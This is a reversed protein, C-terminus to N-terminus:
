RESNELPQLAVSAKILYSCTCRDTADPLLVLGGAPLANIWCGPRIGGYNETGRNSSLDTYGLTASRYVLLHESGALIGCGYSRSFEFAKAEGTLLDWAGPQAYITGGNILVRSAYKAAVDWLKAGSSARFAAMRGGVESDLKFRTDQYSMVLVDYEESVSLTTGYAVDPIKWLPKGGAADLAMLTGAPHPPRQDGRRSASKQSLLDGKASPRDILFVTGGAIAVSNNRISHEPQYTWKVAGSPIDIAFLRTSETFQSSMDGERYRWGVVHDTDSLTGFLTDGAVAVLGWTGEGGDSQRPAAYDGVLKGSAPDIRLCRGGTRVFLGAPSVCLNSGTGATGMLHEQDYGHLIGPLAYTWLKRGNYADVALLGDLGEVFLRGEFCLPAPGRGHRSPMPFGFDTFWLMGLPGRALVDASCNTNAPNCYQHTWTGAGELKGRATETMARPAGICAKGGYPKLVRNLEGDAGPPLGGKVSRGSVILNAFYDPYHTKAPDGQHVTVRVGYLGAAELKRRAAAVNGADPDVAVIQLDTKEALAVALSGDGCGLDLCYGENLGTRRVIEEATQEYVAEIEPRGPGSTRAVTKPAATGSGDFCYLVGRDTALYLRGNAVAPGCPAGDTTSDFVATKSQLDVVCVRDEGCAVAHGGALILERVSKLPSKMRWVPPSLVTKTIPQGKRDTAKQNTWMARRDIAVIEDGAAFVIREPGVAAAMTEISGGAVHGTEVNFISRSHLFHSGAAMIESGGLARYQQLHFYRLTGDRRDLAAPVGRGTPVLLVDGTVVLNGQASIGSRAVADPHPQPMEISGSDDNCWIVKGTDADVAYVYIGESPWIGAAFYVIGDAVCPGGRAPWRSIMRDNGLIRSDRPGGRLKWLLRGDDAGLCYLIGDDGAVFLREGDIAPSFRVPAETFFTWRQEGTAADLAYVKGDASSAFFVAGGSVVPLFARDFPMRTDRGSWAPRPGHPARYIWRTALNEPLSEGTYGSRTADARYTPWEGAAPMRNGGVWLSAVFLAPFQWVCKGTM